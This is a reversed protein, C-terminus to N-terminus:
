QVKLVCTLPASSSPAAPTRIYESGRSSPLTVTSLPRRGNTSYTRRPAQISFRRYGSVWVSWGAVGIRKLAAGHLIEGHVGAVWSRWAVGCVLVTNTGLALVDRSNRTERKRPRVGLNQQVLDRPVSQVARNGEDIMTLLMYGAHMGLQNSTMTSVLTIGIQFVIPTIGPCILSSITTM